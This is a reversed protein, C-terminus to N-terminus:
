VASGPAQWLTREIREAGEDGRPRSPCSWDGRSPRMAVPEWGAARLSTSSEDKRTYTIM